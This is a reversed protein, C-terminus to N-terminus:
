PGRPSFLPQSFLTFPFSLFVGPPQFARVSMNPSPIPPTVTTAVM